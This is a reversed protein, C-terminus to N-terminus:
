SKEMYKKLPKCIAISLIVAAVAELVANLSIITQFVQIISIFSFFKWLCLLVLASHIVTSIGACIGINLADKKIFKKFGIYFLGPLVGLLIRPVLCMVLSALPAGSLFPSFLMDVVATSSTAEILSLVGFTLGFIGGYLPGMLISGIIVPIHLITISVPPIAIFGIKAVSLVIEIAIILTMRTFNQLNKSM